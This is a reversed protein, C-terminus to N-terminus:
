YWRLYEQILKYIIETSGFKWFWNMHFFEVMGWKFVFGNEFLWSTKSSKFPAEKFFLPSSIKVNLYNEKTDKDPLDHLQKNYCMCNKQIYVYM